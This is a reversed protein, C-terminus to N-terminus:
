LQLNHNSWLALMPPLTATVKPCKVTPLAEVIFSAIILRLVSGVPLINVAQGLQKGREKRWSEFMLFTYKAVSTQHKSNRILKDKKTFLASLKNAADGDSVNIEGTIPKLWQFASSYKVMFHIKSYWRGDFPM